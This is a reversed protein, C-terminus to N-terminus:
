IVRFQWLFSVQIELIERCVSGGGKRERGGIRSIRRFQEDGALDLIGVLPPRTSRTSSAERLLGKLSRSKM